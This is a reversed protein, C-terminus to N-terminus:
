HHINSFVTRAHSRKKKDPVIRNLLVSVVLMAGIVVLNLENRNWQWSVFERTEHILLVGLITGVVSGKGGFISTGGLVVATIVDLEMGAAMDAKATNRLSVHFVAMLGAILGSFSYLWFKIPRVRIGSFISGTENHGIAYLSRGLPSRSVVIAAVAACFAFLIGACPVRVITATALRTFAEPFGSIPRCLSVGEAIGRFAALTALTVLLPHVRLFAVFLGNLSGAALGAIVALAAAGCVPIGALYSLGMIVASLAMISGISLDIGGTIIIFTMPLACMALEWIHSSLQAQTKLDIFAPAVLGACLLLAVLVLLLICEHQYAFGSPIRSPKKM